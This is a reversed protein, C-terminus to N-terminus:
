AVERHNHLKPITVPWIAVYGVAIAPLPIMRDLIAGAEVEIEVEVVVVLVVVDEVDEHDEGNAEGGIRITIPGIPNDM